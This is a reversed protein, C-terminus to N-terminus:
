KTMEKIGQLMILIYSFSLGVAIAFINFIEPFRWWILCTIIVILYRMLTGTKVKGLDSDYSKELHYFWSLILLISAFTGM